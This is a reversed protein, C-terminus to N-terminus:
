VNTHESFECIKQDINQDQDYGNQGDPFAVASGIKGFQIKTQEDYRDQNKAPKKIGVDTKEDPTDCKDQHPHTEEKHIIRHISFLHGMFFLDTMIMRKKTM